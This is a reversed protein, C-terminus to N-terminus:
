PIRVPLRRTAEQIKRELDARAAELEAQRERVMAGIESEAAAIRRQAQEAYPRALRDVAERVRREQRDVEGGIEQRLARAAERGLNSRVGIGPGGARGAVRVEVEVTDLRSLARWVLERAWAATGLPALGRAAGAVPAAQASDARHWKVGSARWALSGELRDGQRVLDLRFFGQGLEVRAGAVPLALGPLSVGDLMAKVSDRVPQRVHDLVVLVSGSAPTAGTGARTASLRTPRGYLSPASTLGTITAAYRGSVAGGAEVVADAGGYSLLFDPYTRAKPFRVTTGSARLRKPGAARRPDLGPPLYQEALALWYLIPELREVALDGLLAPSLDPADLSPLHVLSRAYRYDSERAAPLSEASQRLRDLGSQVRSALRNVSDRTERLRRVRNRAQALLDRAGGVGLAKLDAQELRRMLAQTSDLEARPDLRDLDERWAKALSDGQSALTRALTVTRLSDASLRSLDLVTSFGELSLAPVRLRSAWGAVMGRLRQSTPSPHALAGSYRRPTGFRAGRIVATDVILKKELLPLLRVQAVIEGLEVLNTMPRDPNAVELHEIRLSGRRLSLHAAAVDVRAGVIEAGATEIAREIATDLFMWWLVAATVLVASLPLVAKWRVLRM